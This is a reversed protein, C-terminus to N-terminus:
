GRTNDLKLLNVRVQNYASLDKMEKEIIEKENGAQAHLLKAMGPEELLQQLSQPQYKQKRSYQNLENTAIRYIWSSLSVGHWSFRGINLYAKLFTEAAM